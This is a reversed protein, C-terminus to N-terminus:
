RWPLLGTALHRAVEPYFSRDRVLANGIACGWNCNCKGPGLRREAFARMAEGRLVTPLSYGHDRVNGVPERLPECPQVDGYPGLVAITQGAGCIRGLDAEAHLRKLRDDSARKIATFLRHRLGRYGRRNSLAFAKEALVLYQEYPVVMSKDQFNGHLPVLHIRDCEATAALEELFGDLVDVNESSVTIVFKLGVNGRRRALPLVAKHTAMVQAYSAAKTKRIRDHVEPPGDLSLHVDFNTRPNRRSLVDIARVVRDPFAGNTPISVFVPDATDVIAQVIEVLDERLYPEGGSLSPYTLKPLSRAVQRIEELSLEEAQSAHEIEDWYFCMSCRANCRATVFFILWQPFDGNAWVRYPVASRASALLGPTIEKGTFAGDRARYRWAKHRRATGSRLWFVPGWVLGCWFGVLTGTTALATAVGTALRRRLGPAPSLTMAAWVVMALMGATGLAAMAGLLAYGWPAIVGLALAGLTLGLLGIALQVGRQPLYLEPFAWTSQGGYWRQRFYHRVLPWLVPRKLHALSLAPDNVLRFGERAALHFFEADDVWYHAVENFGGVRDFVARRMAVNCLSVECYPVERRCPNALTSKLSFIRSSVIANAAQQTFDETYLANSPGTVVDAGDPGSGLALAAVAAAVWGPSLKVDDDVFALYESAAAAEAGVNRKVCPHRSPSRVVRVTALESAYRVDEDTVLVLEFQDHPATQGEVSAILASIVDPGRSVPVVISLRPRRSRYIQVLGVAMSAVALM